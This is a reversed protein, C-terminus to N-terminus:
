FHEIDFNVSKFFAGVLQAIRSWYFWRRDNM